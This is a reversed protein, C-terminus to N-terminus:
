IWFYRKSAYCITTGNFHLDETHLKLLANLQFYHLMKKPLISDTQEGIV